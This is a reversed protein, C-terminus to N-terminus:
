TVPEQVARARTEIFDTLAAYDNKLVSFHEDAGLRGELAPPM